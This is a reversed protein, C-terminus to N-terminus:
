MRSFGSVPVEPDAGLGAGTELVGRELLLQQSYVVRGAMEDLPMTLLIAMAEAMYRSPEALPDDEGTVHENMVAGPTPVIQSPALAAVGVGTKVIEQAFGQTLREIAAKQAGYATDGVPAEGSPWPGSGPGVASASSINVVRGSGRESMHPLLLNSLIFPADCNIQWSLRWLKPSISSLEGFIGVAANNILADVRGNWALSEEVLRSYSDPDALNATRAIAQGGDAKIREVTTSLSGGLPHSGEDLTRAICIVAAGREALWVAADAGIGRSAGTLMVTLGELNEYQDTM